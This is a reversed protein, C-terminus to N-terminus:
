KHTISWGDSHYASTFEGTDADVCRVTFTYKTGDVANKYTFSTGTITALTKWGSSTKVFVRYLEAGPVADWTLKVGSSTNKISTVQPTPYYTTTWGTANYASAFKGNQADVCRVTFTYQEGPVVNKYVYTTESTSGVAKWGSSTKVFVRYMQAGDTGDWTLKVGASTSELKTVGPTELYYTATWGDANYASTFKGSQADVCRVTFTYANGAVANKYVYGTDATDGAAKWGSSTKVFVRYMQAGDVSDWTLRLGEPTSELQNVEPTGLYYTATWGTANYPSVFQGTQADVCRVTFTYANGVAVDQYVFSTGSVDGVAKWGSSTKVFVRYMKAGDVSGWTLRIGESTSELKTVKPAALEVPAPKDYTHSWGNEYCSSVVVRDAADVCSVTFTYTEGDKVDTYTFYPETTSGVIKWGSSTKFQVRYREAGPISSWTLKVGDATDEIKSVRPQGIYTIQWGASYYSSTLLNNDKNACRITFIYDQGSEVWIYTFTNGTTNGVYDWSGGPAKVYIRYREAGPVSDWTLKVGTVRNEIETIQPVALYYTATWGTTNYASTFQGNQPDVCRVTFTYKNGAVADEYVFSTGSVNGVPKWSGSSKVFVRYMQAGTVKGWTLKIGDATNELKTVNPTALSAARPQIVLTNETEQEAAYASVVLAACVAALTLLLCLMKRIKVAM